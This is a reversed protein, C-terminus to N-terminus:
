HAYQCEANQHLGRGAKVSQCSVMFARQCQPAQWLALAYALLEVAQTRQVGRALQRQLPWFVLVGMVNFLTHFLALQILKNEGMGVWATSQLVLWTMVPLAFFAIIATTCNFVM